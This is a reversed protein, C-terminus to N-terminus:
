IVESNDKHNKNNDIQICTSQTCIWTGTAKRVLEDGTLAKGSGGKDDDGCSMAFLMTLVVLLLIGWLKMKNM